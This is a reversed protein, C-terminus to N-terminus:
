KDEKPKEYTLANASDCIGATTPDTLIGMASLASVIALLSDTITSESISPVIEFASLVAYVFTVAVPILTIWIVPNKLRVKWNIKTM